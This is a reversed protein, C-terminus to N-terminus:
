NQVFDLLKVIKLELRINLYSLEKLTPVQYLVFNLILKSLARM